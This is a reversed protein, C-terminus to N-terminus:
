DHDHHDEDHGGGHELQGRIEGAPYTNTHVNGYTFGARIAKVVESFEGAAIGQGAPGIIDAPEIVGEVEGPQAPCAGTATNGCLFASIGGALGRAGFHIHAARVGNPFDTSPVAGELRDYTLKFHIREEAADLRLVLRGRGTTSLTSPAEEYSRLTTVITGFRDDHTAGAFGSMAVTAFAVAALVHRTSM